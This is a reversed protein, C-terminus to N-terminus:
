NFHKYLAHNFSLATFNHGICSQDLNVYSKCTCHFRQITTVEGTPKAIYTAQNYLAFEIYCLGGEFLIQQSNYVPKTIYGKCYM